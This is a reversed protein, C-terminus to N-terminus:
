SRPAGDAGDTERPTEALCDLRTVEIGTDLSYIIDFGLARAESCAEEPTLHRNLAAEGYAYMGYYPTTECGVEEGRIGALLPVGTLAPIAFSAEWCTRRMGEDWVVVNDPPVYVLAREGGAGMAALRDAIQQLPPPQGPGGFPTDALRAENAEVSSRFAEIRVNYRDLGPLLLRFTIFLVFATAIGAVLWLPESSSFRATVVRCVAALTVTMAILVGPHIFYIAGAGAIEFLAGPVSAVVVTFLVVFIGALPQFSFAKLAAMVVLCAASYWLTQQWFDLRLSPFHWWHFPMIEPNFVFLYLALCAAVGIAGFMAMGALALLPRYRFVLMFMSALFFAALTYGTSSKILGAVLVLMAAMMAEPVVARTLATGPAMWRLGLPIAAFMITLSLGYSESILYGIYYNSQAFLFLALSVVAVLFPMTASPQGAQVAYLFLYLIMPVVFLQMGMALTLTVDSGIMTVIAAMWRHVGVHYALPTLGHMGTSVVGQDAIMAVIASHFATDRHLGGSVMALDGFVFAYGAGNIVYFQVVALFAGLTLTMVIRWGHVQRFTGISVIAAIAALMALPIMAWLGARSTLMPYLLLALLAGPVALLQPIMRVCSALRLGGLTALCYILVMGAQLTSAPEFGRWLAFMAFTTALYAVVLVGGVTTIDETVEPLPESTLRDAAM